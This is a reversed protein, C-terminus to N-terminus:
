PLIGTALQFGLLLTAGIVMYIFQEQRRQFM